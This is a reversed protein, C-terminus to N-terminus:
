QICLTIAIKLEFTKLYLSSAFEDLDVTISESFSMITELRKKEASFISNFKVRDNEISSEIKKVDYNDLNFNITFYHNGSYQLYIVRINIIIEALNNLPDIETTSVNYSADLFGIDMIKTKAM